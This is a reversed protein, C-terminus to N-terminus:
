HFFHFSLSNNVMIGKIYLLPLHSFQSINQINSKIDSREWKRGLKPPFFFSYVLTFFKLWVIKKGRGKVVTMISFWMKKERKREWKEIEGKEVLGFIAITISIIRWIKSSISAISWFSLILILSKIFTIYQTGITPHMNLCMTPLGLLLFYSICKFTNFLNQLSVLIQCLQPITHMPDWDM